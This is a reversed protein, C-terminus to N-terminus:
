ISSMLASLQLQMAMLASKTEISQEPESGSKIQALLAKREDVKLGCQALLADVKIQAALSVSQGDLVPVPEEYIRTVFGKALAEPANFYTEADMLAMLEEVDLGTKEKYINAMAQDFVLMTEILAEFDRRNGFWECLSNHIMVTGNPSIEIDDGAMAILSAASAAIGIIKVTVHGSYQKLLNYIAQGELM